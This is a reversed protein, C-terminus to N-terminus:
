FDEGVADLDDIGGLEYYLISRPNRNLPLHYYLLGLYRTVVKRLRIEPRAQNAPVSPNTLFLRASSIVGAREPPSRWGFVFSWKPISAAKMDESTFGLLWAKSSGAHQPYVQRMSVVLKEAVVQGTRADHTGVEIPIPDLVEIKLEYRRRFHEALENLEYIPFRDFPIFYITPESRPTVPKTKAPLAAGPSSQKQSNDTPVPKTEKGPSGQAAPGRPDSPITIERPYQKTQILTFAMLMAAVTTM